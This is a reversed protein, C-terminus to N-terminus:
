CQHPQWSSQGNNSKDDNMNYSCNYNSIREMNQRKNEHVM